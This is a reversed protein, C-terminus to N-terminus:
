KALIARVDGYSGSKVLKNSKTSWIHVPRNDIDKAGFYIEALGLTSIDWLFRNMAGNVKKEDLGFELDKNKEISVLYNGNASIALEEMVTKPLTIGTLETKEELDFCRIVRDETCLAYARKGNPHALLQMVPSKLKWTELKERKGLSWTTLTKDKGAILICDRAPLVRMATVGDAKTELTAKKEGTAADWFYVSSDVEANEDLKTNQTRGANCTATVVQKGDKTFCVLKVAGPHKLQHLKKCKVADWVIATDDESGSVLKKGDSSWSLALINNEHGKMTIYDDAFAKNTGVYVNKTTVTAQFRNFVYENNTALIAPKSPHQEVIPPVAPFDPFEASVQLDNALVLAFCLVALPLPMSRCM